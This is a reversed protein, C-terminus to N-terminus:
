LRPDRVAKHVVVEAGLFLQQLRDKATGPRPHQVRDLLDLARPNRRAFLELRYGPDHQARPLGIGIEDADEDAFNGAARLQSALHLLDLVGECGELPDDDMALFLALQPGIEIRAER